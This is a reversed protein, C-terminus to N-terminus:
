HTMSLNIKSLADLTEDFTIMSRSYFMPNPKKSPGVTYGFPGVCTQIKKRFDSPINVYFPEPAMLKCIDIAQRHEQLFSFFADCSFTSIKKRILSLMKTDNLLTPLLRNKFSHYRCYLVHDMVCSSLGFDILRLTFDPTMRMNDSILDGHIFQHKHYLRKLEVLLSSIMPVLIPLPIIFPIYTKGDSKEMIVVSVFSTDHVGYCIHFVQPILRSHPNYLEQMVMGEHLFSEKIYVVTDYKVYFADNSSPHQTFLKQVKCVMGSGIDYVTGTSGHGIVPKDKWYHQIDADFFEHILSAGNQILTRIHKM